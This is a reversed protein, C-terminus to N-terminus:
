RSGIKKLAIIEEIIIYIKIINYLEIHRININWNIWVYNIWLCDEGMYYGRMCNGWVYSVKVCSVWVCNLRPGAFMPFELIITKDNKSKKQM